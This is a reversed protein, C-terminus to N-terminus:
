DNLGNRIHGAHHHGCANICGSIKLKLEGIDQERAALRQSIRQAVPISRATALACYDLGPCSIIDSVLGANASGLGAAELRTWLAFLDAQRLDPLVLNQEHTVRIEGHSLEDALAAVLRMQESTADGPIGGIPKLCDNRPRLLMDHAAASMPWLPLPWFFM